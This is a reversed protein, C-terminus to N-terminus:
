GNSDEQKMQLERNLSDIAEQIDQEYGKAGRNGAMLLKKIAHGVAHSRVEFLELVRYIDLTSLNLVNKKYHSHKEAHGENLPELIDYEHPLGDEGYGSSGSENYSIDNSGWFIWQGWGSSDVIEVREGKRTVYKGGVELKFTM